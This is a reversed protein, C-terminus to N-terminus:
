RLIRDSENWENVLTKVDTDLDMVQPFTMLWSLIAFEETVVEEELENDTFLEEESEDGELVDDLYHTPSMMTDLDM